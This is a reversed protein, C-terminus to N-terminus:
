AISRTPLSRIMVLGTVADSASSSGTLSRVLRTKRVRRNMEALLSTGYAAQIVETADDKM